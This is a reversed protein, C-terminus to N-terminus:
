RAEGIEDWLEIAKAAEIDQADPEEGAGAGGLVPAPLRPARQGRSRLEAYVGLVTARARDATYAAILDVAEGRGGELLKALALAFAQRRLRGAVGEDLIELEERLGAETGSERLVRACFGHFTGVYAEEIARAARPEGLALLRARVRERLESGARETFTIALIREPAIGDERVARVFREVLVSTKGSGAGAALLLPEGRRAVAQEQEDTLARM